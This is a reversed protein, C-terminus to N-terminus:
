DSFVHHWISTGNILLHLQESDPTWAIDATASAAPVNTYAPLYLLNRWTRQGTARYYVKYSPQEHYYYFTRLKATRSGDPSDIKATEHSPPTLIVYAIYIIFFMFVVQGLKKM